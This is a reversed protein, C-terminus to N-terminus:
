NERVFSEEGESCVDRFAIPKVLMVEYDQADFHNPPSVLVLCKMTKCLLSQNTLTSCNGFM